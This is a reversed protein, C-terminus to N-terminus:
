NYIYCLNLQRSIYNPQEGYGVSTWVSNQCPKANTILMVLHLSCLNIKVECGVYSLTCVTRAQGAHSHGEGM